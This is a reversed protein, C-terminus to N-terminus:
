VDMNAQFKVILADRRMEGRKQGEIIRERKERSDSETQRERAGGGRGM